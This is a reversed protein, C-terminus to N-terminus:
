TAAPWADVAQNLLTQLTDPHGPLNGAQAMLPSGGGRGQFPVILRQLMQGIHPLPKDASQAFLLQGQEGPLALFTITGPRAILERALRRVDDLTRDPLLASVVTCGAQRPATAHLAEAELRILADGQQRNHRLASKLEDRQKRVIAPLDDIACTFDASIEQLLAGKRQYDDLARRGCLFVLRTGGHVRETKVVKILGVSGTASFHTGGCANLDFDAIEVLRLRDGEVPPRKRLPLADAEAHTVQFARIPRNEQVVRNALAEAQAVVAPDLQDSPLDITADNQGLHFGVTPLDAVRILAQSLIHQGTHQQMHDIRRDADIRAPHRGPTIPRDLWHLIAQDSERITVEEVRCPGLRGTDHPQGGSAPYFFTGTLLAAPRGEAEVCAVIEAEFALCDADEYYLRENM